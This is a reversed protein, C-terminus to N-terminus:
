FLFDREESVGVGNRLSKPLHAAEKAGLSGTPQASYFSVAVAARKFPRGEHIVRGEGGRPRLQGGKVM